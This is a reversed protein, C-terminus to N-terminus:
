LRTTSNAERVGLRRRAHESGRALGIDIGEELLHGM